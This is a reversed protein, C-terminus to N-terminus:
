PAPARNSAVPHPAPALVPVVVPEAVVPEAVVPPVLVPQGVVPQGVVPRAVSRGAVSAKEVLDAIAHDFVAQDFRRASRVLAQAELPERIARLMADGIAEVSRESVLFGTVGDQVIERAGSATFAIPPRGASQVEATALGFDEIGPVLLATCRAMANAVEADTRRGLFRVAPGALRELRRRDSGAGIIDLPLDHRNAAAIALDLGKHRRLRAVVLFRGSREDTPEFASTQVPPYIVPAERGYADHIRGATFASNAVYVDVRSAAELDSRRVAALAPAGM